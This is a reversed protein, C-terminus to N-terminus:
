YESSHMITMVRRTQTPDSPDESGYEYSLDYYDIKWCFTKEDMEISGFDREGHPDNGPTFADFGKVLGILRLQQEKSLAKV